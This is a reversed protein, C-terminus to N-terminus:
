TCSISNTSIPTQNVMDTHQQKKEVGGSWGFYLSIFISGFYIFLYIFLYIFVFLIFYIPFFLIFFFLCLIFFFVYVYHYLHCKSRFAQLVLQNIHKLIYVHKM